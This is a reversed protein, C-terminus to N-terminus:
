LNFIVVGVRRSSLSVSSHRILFFIFQVLFNFCVCVRERREEESRKTEVEKRTGPNSFREIELLHNLAV